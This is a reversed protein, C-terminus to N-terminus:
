WLGPMSFLYSDTACARGVKASFLWVAVNKVGSEPVWTGAMRQVEDQLHGGVLYSYPYTPGDVGFWRRGHALGGEGSVYSEGGQVYVRAGQPVLSLMSQLGFPEGIAGGNMCLWHGQLLPDPYQIASLDHSYLIAHWGVPRVGDPVKDWAFAGNPAQNLM